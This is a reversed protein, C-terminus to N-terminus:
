LFDELAMGEGDPRPADWARLQWPRSADAERVACPQPRLHTRPGGTGGAPQANPKCRAPRREPLEGHTREGLCRRRKKKKKKTSTM